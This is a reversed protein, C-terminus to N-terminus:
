TTPLWRWHAPDRGHGSLYYTTPSPRRERIMSAKILKQYLPMIKEAVHRWRLHPLEKKAEERLTKGLAPNDLIALTKNVMEDLDWFDVALVNHLVEAVGSQKSLLVPAGMSAAELPTIGFPESVSPFVYLDASRYLAATESGEFRGFFFCRDSIGLRAVERIAQEEMDGTGAVLFFVDRRRQLIERALRVFYDPGKQLTLRGAFLVLKGGSVHLRKTFALLRTSRERVACEGAEEAAAKELLSFYDPDMGNHLVHVKDPSIGYRSVITHKTLESVALVMDAANMGAREIAYVEPNVNTGGTRDFETAHVHFIFPKGSLHKARIGAIATLWDHAHILDFSEGRMITEAVEAYARVEEFLNRGYADAYARPHAYASPNCSGKRLALKELGLFRPDVFEGLLESTRPLVFIIETGDKALARTLGFCATGLGGSHHPPFEWGFM